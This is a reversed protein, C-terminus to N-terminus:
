LAVLKAFADNCTASTPKGNSSDLANLRRPREHTVKFDNTWPIKKVIDPLLFGHPHDDNPLYLRYFPEDFSPDYPYSLSINGQEESSM